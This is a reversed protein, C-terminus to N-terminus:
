MRTVVKEKETAMNVGIFIIYFCLILILHSLERGDLGGFSSKVKYLFAPIGSLLIGSVIFINRKMNKNFAQISLTPIVVVMLGIITNTTVVVFNQFVLVLIIFVTFQINIGIKLNKKFRESEIEKLAALQIFYISLATFLWGFIQLPKDTYNYLLHGFAGIFSGLGMFLFFYGYYENDKNNKLKNYFTYTVITILIDTIFSGPSLLELGFLHISSEEM